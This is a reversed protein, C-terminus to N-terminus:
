YLDFTDIREEGGAPLDNMDVPLRDEVSIDEYDTDVVDTIQKRRKVRPLKHQGRSDTILAKSLENQSDPHELMAGAGGLLPTAHSAIAAFRARNHELLRANFERTRALEKADDEGREALAMPQVYKEELLFQQRGDESVALARSMDEPDYRLEWRLYALERFRVDFCDYQYRKGGIRPRLGAGELTNTHGTTRGFRLLYAEEALPLRREQPTAEWFKLYAEMKSQREREIIAELQKIVGEEDPFSKKVMNKYEASPQHAKSATIGYGSWNAQTKCYVENLTLFYREVPKSKANKVRAPTVKDAITAYYPTMSKLAFHDSQLQCTKFRGGFLRRTYNSANRLAEAILEADEKDGIAYGVPFNCCPDLVVEIVKRNTYTVVGKANTKQYYLEADWGDLSWMLMAAEPKRRSVQMAKNNAFHTSGHRMADIVLGNEKRYKAVTGATIPKWGVKKATENYLNAVFANDFGNPIACLASIVSRKEETDVKAANRNGHKGSVLAAYGEKMYKNFRDQLRRAEGPLTNPYADAIRPLVGAAKSWFDCKKVKAHGTKQRLANARELWGHFANLIAADNCYLARKEAPLYSGDDFTYGDFFAVAAADVEITDELTKAKESAQLDPFRQYVAVRYKYPLTDVYYMAPTNRCARQAPIMGRCVMKQVAYQSVIGALDQLGVCARNNIVQVM